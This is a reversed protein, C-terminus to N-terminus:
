AAPTASALRDTPSTPWPRRTTGEMHVRDAAGRGGVQGGRRDDQGGADDPRRAGAQTHSRGDGGHIPGGILTTISSRVVTRDTTMAETIRLLSARRICM